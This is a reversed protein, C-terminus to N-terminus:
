LLVVIQTQKIKEKKKKQKKTQKTKKKYLHVDHYVSIQSIQFLLLPAAQVVVEAEDEFNLPRIWVPHRM